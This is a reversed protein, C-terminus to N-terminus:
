LAEWREKTVKVVRRLADVYHTLPEKTIANQLLYEIETLMTLVEEKAEPNKAEVIRSPFIQVNFKSHKGVLQEIQQALLQMEDTLLHRLTESNGWLTRAFVINNLQQYQQYDYNSMYPQEMAIRHLPVVLNIIGDCGLEAYNQIDAEIRNFLLPFLESLMFHDSYYEFITLQEKTAKRWEKISQWARQDHASTFNQTYDRGWYAYLIDTVGAQQDGRELMEWSLGANYVIHEVAVQLNARQLAHQLKETFAIYRTLFVKAEIGKAGVDEPWLSIRNIVPEKQCYSVILKIIAQQAQENQLFDHNNIAHKTTFGTEEGILDNVAGDMASSGAVQLGNAKALLYRLSHGGLTVFIGRKQIEPLLAEKVEDWLFFTFFLENLGNKTGIDLMRKLFPVDNITEFVNGRRSFHPKGIYSTPIGEIQIYQEKQLDFFVIGAVKELFRYVGYLLARSSHSYITYHGADNRIEYGDDQMGSLVELRVSANGTYYHLLEELAFQEIQNRPNFAKIM